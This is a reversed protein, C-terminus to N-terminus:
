SPTGTEPRLPGQVGGVFGRYWNVFPGGLIGQIIVALLVAAAFNEGPFNTSAITLAIAPHRSMCSYALVFSHDPESGAMVWGIALSALAFVVMGAVTGFDIYDLITPGTIILLLVLAIMVFLGSLKGLMPSFRASASPFVLKTAIGLLLPLFVILVM